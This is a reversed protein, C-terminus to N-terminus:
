ASGYEWCGFCPLLFLLSLVDWQKSVRIKAYLTLYSELVDTKVIWYKKLLPGAFFVILIKKVEAFM